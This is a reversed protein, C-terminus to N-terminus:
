RRRARTAMTAAWRASRGKSRRRGIEASSDRRRAGGGRDCSDASRYLRRQDSGGARRAALRCLRIRLPGLGRQRRRRHSDIARTGIFDGGSLGKGTELITQQHHRRSTGLGHHGVCTTEDILKFRYSGVNVYGSEPDRTVTSTACMYGGGDKEHWRAWPFIKLNVDKGQKVNQKVPADNVFVPPLPQFKKVQANWWRAAETESLEPPCGHIIKQREANNLMNTMLRVGRPYGKIADFLLVPCDHRAGIMGTLAGIELEGDAGEIVKLHGMEKVVSLYERLDNFPRCQRPASQTFTM